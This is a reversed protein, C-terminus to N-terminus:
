HERGGRQSNEYSAVAGEKALALAAIARALGLSPQATNAATWHASPPEENCKEDEVWQRVACLYVGRNPFEVDM